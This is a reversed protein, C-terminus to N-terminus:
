YYIKRILIVILSIGFCVAFPLWLPAFVWIWSWSIIKCLKLVIFVITLAGFFGIGGNKKNNSNETM